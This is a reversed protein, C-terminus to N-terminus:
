FLSSEHLAGSKKVPQDAYHNDHCADHGSKIEVFRDRLEHHIMLSVIQPIEHAVHASEAFPPPM